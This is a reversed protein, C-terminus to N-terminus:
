SRTVTLGKHSHLGTCGASTRATILNVSVTGNPFPLLCGDPWNSGLHMMEIKMLVSGTTCCDPGSVLQFESRKIVANGNPWDTHTESQGVSGCQILSLSIYGSRLSTYLVAFLGVCRAATFSIVATKVKMDSGTQECRGGTGGGGQGGSVGQATVSM